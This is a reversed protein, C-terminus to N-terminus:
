KMEELALEQLYRGLANEVTPMPHVGSKRLKSTDMRSNLPRRAPTPYESSPIPVVRCNLGAGALILRTFQAWSMYGDNVVHYIGYKETSILDCIVRAVDVAYTPSGIQDDVVRIEKKEKGLRLMTRVFNKGHIGYLWSVRLLFYKQMLSRVAIEGQVKSLGYVNKPDYPDEEKWPTEGEGSFVYDTSIYVLKADVSLAARVMNMTGDGNVAACIEPESEARDVATYAACHVIVDPAYDRVYNKVAEGDTLDFDQVDVGRCPVGREELLRVVEWGLQGNYGTVLVKM